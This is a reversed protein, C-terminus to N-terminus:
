KVPSLVYYPLVSDGSCFMPKLVVNDLVAGKWIHFGIRVKAIGDVITCKHTIYEHSGKTTGDPFDQIIVMEFKYRAMKDNNSSFWYVEGPSVPYDRKIYTWLEGSATGNLILTGDNLVNFTIGGNRYGDKIAYPFPILNLPNKEAIYPKVKVLNNYPEFYNTSYYLEFNVKYNTLVNPYTRNVVIRWHGTMSETITWTRNYRFDFNVGSDGVFYLYMYENNNTSAIYTGPKLTVTKTLKYQANTKGDNTIQGNLTVTNDDNATFSVGIASGTKSPPDLKFINTDLRQLKPKFVENNVVAGKKFNIVVRIKVVEEKILCYHSYSEHEYEVIKNDKDYKLISLRFSTSSVNPNYSSFFFKEGATVKMSCLEISCEGSVTDGSGTYNATIVGYKDIDCKIIGYKIEGDVVGSYPYPILNNTDNIYTKVKKLKNYPEFPLQKNGSYLMPTVKYNSLQQQFTKSVVLYWQGTHDKSLTRSRNAFDIDTDATRFILYINGANNTGAWYQGAKLTVPKTIAYLSNGTTVVQGNLTVTGDDNASFTVGRYTKNKEPPYFQLLNKSNNIYVSM